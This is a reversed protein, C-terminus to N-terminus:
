IGGARRLVIFFEKTGKIKRIIEAKQAVSGKKSNEDMVGVILVNKPTHVDSIFEMVKTKYGFYELILSRLGDTVMESQRELFVGYKLLFDLDNKRKGKVIERRIQKHCCPAVVILKAGATIGKYIADDTATDCAHLAILLDTNEADFGEITGQM